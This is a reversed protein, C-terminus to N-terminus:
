EIIEYESGDCESQWLYCPGFKKKGSAIWNKNSYFKKLLERAKFLEWKSLAGLEADFKEILKKAFAKFNIACGGIARKFNKEPAKLLNAMALYNPNSLISGHLFYTNANLMIAIANGSIKAGNFYISTYDKKKLEANIGLEGLAAAVLKLNKRYLEAINLFKVDENRSALFYHVDNQEFYAAGGGTRRMTVECDYKLCNAYDIDSIAERYGLIIAPNSFTYIKLTPSAFGNKVAEAIAQDLAMQYSAKKNPIIIARIMKDLANFAM